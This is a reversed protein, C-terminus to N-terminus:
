PRRRLGVLDVVGARDATPAQLGPREGGQHRRDAPAEARAGLTDPHPHRARRGRCRGWRDANAHCAPHHQSGRHARGEAVTVTLVIETGAPKKDGAKLSQKEVQGAKAAEM